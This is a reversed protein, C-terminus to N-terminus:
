ADIIKGSAIFYPNAMQAKNYRLPIGEHADVMSGGAEEILVQGAATDWEM